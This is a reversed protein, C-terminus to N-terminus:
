LLYCDSLDIVCHDAREASLVTGSLVYTEGAESAGKPDAGSAGIMVDDPGDGDDGTDGGLGAPLFDFEFEDELSRLLAQAVGLAVVTDVDLNPHLGEETQAELHVGFLRGGATGGDPTDGSTARNESMESSPSLLLVKVQSPTIQAGVAGEGSPGDTNLDTLRPASGGEFKVDFSVSQMSTDAALVAFLPYHIQMPGDAPPPPPLTSGRSTDGFEALLGNIGDRQAGLGAWEFAGLLVTEVQGDSNTYTGIVETTGIPSSEGGGSPGSADITIPNLEFVASAPAGDDDPLNGIEFRFNSVQWKKEVSQAVAIAFGPSPGSEFNLDGEAEGTPLLEVDFSAVGDGSDKSTIDQKLIWDISSTRRPMILGKRISYCLVGARGGVRSLM